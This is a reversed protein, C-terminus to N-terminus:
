ISVVRDVGVYSVDSPETSMRQANEYENIENQLTVLQPIKEIVPPEHFTVNM